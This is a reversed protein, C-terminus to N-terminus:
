PATPQGYVAVLVSRDIKNESWVGIATNACDQMIARSPPDWWWQGLVDIGNITVNPMTAFTEAVKGNFGADRAREQPQSGDSGVDGNINPNNLADLSHRRAADVLRGDRRPETTCGNQHQAAYIDAFIAANLRANDAHAAPASWTVTGVLLALMPLPMASRVTNSTPTM